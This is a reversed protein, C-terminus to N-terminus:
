ILNSVNNTQYLLDISYSLFIKAIIIHGYIVALLLVNNGDDDKLEEIEVLNNKMFYQVLDISNYQIVKFFTQNYVEKDEFAFNHFIYKVIDDAGELVLKKCISEADAKILLSLMIQRKNDNEEKYRTFNDKIEEYLSSESLKNNDVINENYPVEENNEIKIEQQKDDANEIHQLTDNQQTNSYSQSFTNNNSKNYVNNVNHFLRDSPQQSNTMSQKFSNNKSDQEIQMNQQNFKNLHNFQNGDSYEETKKKDIIASNSAKNNTNRNAEKNNSNLVLNSFLSFRQTSDNNEAVKRSM